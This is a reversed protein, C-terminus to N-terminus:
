EEEERSASKMVLKAADGTGEKTLVVEVVDGTIDSTQEAGVNDTYTKLMLDIVKQPQGADKLQKELKELFTRRQREPEKQILPTADYVGDVFQFTPNGDKDKATIERRVANNLGQRLGMNVFRVLADENLEGKKATGDSSDETFAFLKKIGDLNHVGPISVSQRGLEQKTTAVTGNGAGSPTSQADQTVVATSM